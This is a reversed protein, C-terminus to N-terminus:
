MVTLVITLRIACLTQPDFTEANSGHAEPRTSREAKGESVLADHFVDLYM